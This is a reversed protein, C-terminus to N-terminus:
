DVARFQKNTEQADRYLLKTKGGIDIAQINERGYRKELEQFKDQETPQFSLSLRGKFGMGQTVDVESDKLGLSRAVLKSMKSQQDPKDLETVGDNELKYSGSELSERANQQFTPHARAIAALKEADEPNGADHANQVAGM